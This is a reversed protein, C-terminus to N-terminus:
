GRIEPVDFDVSDIIEDEETSEFKDMLDNNNTIKLRIPINYFKHIEQVIDKPIYQRLHNKIYGHILLIRNYSIALSYNANTGPDIDKLYLLKATLKQIICDLVDLAQLKNNQDFTNISLSSIVESLIYTSQLSPLYSKISSFTDTMAELQKVVFKPM